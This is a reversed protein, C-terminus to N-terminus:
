VNISFEIKHKAPKFELFNIRICKHNKLIRQISAYSVGLDEEASRIFDESYAYFYALVNVVNDENSSVPKSLTQPAKM